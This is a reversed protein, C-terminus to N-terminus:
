NCAANGLQQTLDNLDCLSHSWNSLAPLSIQIDRDHLPPHVTLLTATDNDGKLLFSRAHTRRWFVPDLAGAFLTNTAPAFCMFKWQGRSSWEISCHLTRQQHDISFYHSRPQTHLDTYLTRNLRSLSHFVGISANDAVLQWLESPLELIQSHRQRTTCAM